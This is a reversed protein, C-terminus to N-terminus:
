RACTSAPPRRSRRTPPRPSSAECPRSTGACAALSRLRRGCSTSTTAWSSRGDFHEAAIARWEDEAGPLLPPVYHTLVLTGVGNRAATQAAQEVSSHYDLIDQLRPCRSPRRGPRRPHRHARARRRRRLAPRARRVARHRGRDGGRPGDHEVRYGVSPDCRDTTPPRPWSGCAARTSAGGRRPAGRGRRRPEWTLDDHHALRYSIDPALSALLGDVM